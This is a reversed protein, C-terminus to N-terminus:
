SAQPKLKKKRPVAPKYNQKIDNFLIQAQDDPMGTPLVKKFSEYDNNLAYARAKTAKIKSIDSDDVQEDDSDPDRADGATVVHLNKYGLRLAEDEHEKYPEFMSSYTQARDSGCVLILDTYGKTTLYKVADFITVIEPADIINVNPLAKDLAILKHEYPIPNKKPDTKHSLIIFSERHKEKGLKVVEAILMEHGLTPPNMRAFTFVAKGDQVTNINRLIKEVIVSYNM